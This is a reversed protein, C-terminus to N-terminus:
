LDPKGQGALEGGQSGPEGERKYIVSHDKKEGPAKPFKEGDRPDYKCVKGMHTERSEEGSKQLPYEVRTETLTIKIDQM